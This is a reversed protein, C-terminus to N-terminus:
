TVTESKVIDSARKIEGFETVYKVESIMNFGTNEKVRKQVVDIIRLVDSAKANGNNNIFNAHVTSVEADGIKFGKFGLEEIIQGPPGYKVYVEPNSIFTSGCNPKKQPFKNRRARLIKLMDDRISAYSKQEDFTLEVEAIIHGNSQFNSRRYEFGCENKYFCSIEGAPNVTKVKSVHDGINKRQSGGNMCVLGGLTGPIGAIHEIGSLGSRAVNRAFGPVWAGAQSWVSQRKISYRSMRGGIQICVARLGQDSFLLNSTSGIIVYPLRNEALYRIVRALEETCAPTVLCDAIGGIRWRSMASLAVREKVGNPVLSRLDQINQESLLM